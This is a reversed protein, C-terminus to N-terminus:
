ARRMSSASALGHGSSRTHWFAKPWPLGGPHRTTSRGSGHMATRDWSASRSSWEPGPQPPRAPASPSPASPVSGPRLAAQRHPASLLEGHLTCRWGDMSLAGAAASFDAILVAPDALMSANDGRPCMKVLAQGASVGHAPIRWFRARPQKRLDPGHPNLDPGPQPVTVAMEDLGVQPNQMVHWAPLRAQPLCQASAGHSSVLKRSDSTGHVPRSRGGRRRPLGTV